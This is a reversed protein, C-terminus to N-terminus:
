LQKKNNKITIFKSYVLFFLPMIQAKQRVAIGLNGSIQALSLSVILFSIFCIIFYGNLSRVKFIGNFLFNTFLILYVVNEISTFIGIINPADIFL